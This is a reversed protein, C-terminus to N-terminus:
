KLEVLYFTFRGNDVDFRFEHIAFAKAGSRGDIVPRHKVLLDIAEATMEIQWDDGACTFIVDYKEM